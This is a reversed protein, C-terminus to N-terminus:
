MREKNDPRMQGDGTETLADCQEDTYGPWRQERKQRNYRQEAAIDQQSDASDANKLLVEVRSAASRQGPRRSKMSDAHLQTM